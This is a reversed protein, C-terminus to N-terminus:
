KFVKKIMNHLKTKFGDVEFEGDAYKWSMSSKGNLMNNKQEENYQKGNYLHLTHWDPVVRSAPYVYYVLKRYGKMYGYTQHFGPKAFSLEMLGRGPKMFVAWQLGAGNIGILIWTCRILEYQDLVSMDSFNVVDTNNYCLQITAQKLQNVNLIM